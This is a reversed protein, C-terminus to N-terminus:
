PIGGSKDGAGNGFPDEGIREGDFKSTAGGGAEPYM